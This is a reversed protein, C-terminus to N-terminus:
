DWCEPPLPLCIESNSALKSCLSNWSLWPEVSFGTEFFCFLVFCSGFFLFLFLSFWVLGLFVFLSPHCMHSLFSCKSLKLFSAQITFCNVPSNKIM